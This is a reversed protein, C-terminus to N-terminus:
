SYVVLKIQFILIADFTLMEWDLWFSERLWAETWSQCCNSWPKLSLPWKIDILWTRKTSLIFSLCVILLLGSLFRHKGKLNFCIMRRCAVNRRIGFRCASGIFVTWWLAVVRSSTIHCTLLRKSKWHSCMWLLFQHRVKRPTVFKLRGHM